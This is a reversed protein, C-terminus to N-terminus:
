MIVGRTGLGTAVYIAQCDPIKFRKSSLALVNIRSIQGEDPYESWEEEVPPTYSQRYEGHRLLHRAPVSQGSEM